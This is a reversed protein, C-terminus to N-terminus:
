GLGAPRRGPRWRWVSYSLLLTAILGSTVMGIGAATGGPLQPGIRLFGLTFVPITPSSLWLVGLGLLWLAGAASLAIRLRTEVGRKAAEISKQKLPELLRRAWSYHQALLAVGAVLVLMGPGPLPMLILGAIVLMWGLVLSGTQHFWRRM